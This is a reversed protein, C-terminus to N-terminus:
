VVTTPCYVCLKQHRRMIKCIKQKKKERVRDMDLNTYSRHGRRKMGDILQVVVARRVLAQHVFRSMSKPDDEESTKLLISVDSSLEDGIWPLDACAEDEENTRLRHLIDQWPLPLSTANGRAGMRHRAMHSESDFPNEKRYKAEMTFCIMTTICVSSCIVELVTAELTYLERPAYFIMMDNALDAPPMEPKERWAFKDGCEHCLPVTCNTCFCRGTLCEQDSCDRDEPCSLITVHGSNFPVDIQFDEFEEPTELLNPADEDCNGYRRLYSEM